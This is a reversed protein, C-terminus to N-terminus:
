RYLLGGARLPGIELIGRVLDRRMTAYVRIALFQLLHCLSTMRHRDSGHANEQLLPDKMRGKQAKKPQM